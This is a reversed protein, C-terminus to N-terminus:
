RGEEDSSLPVLTPLGDGPNAGFRPATVPAASLAEVRPLGGGYLGWSKWVAPFDHVPWTVEGANKLWWPLRHMPAEVALSLIYDKM